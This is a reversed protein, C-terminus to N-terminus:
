MQAPMNVNLVNQRDNFWVPRITGNEILLYDAMGLDDKYDDYCSKCAERIFDVQRRILLNSYREAEITYYPYKSFQTGKLEYDITNYNARLSVVLINMGKKSMSDLKRINVQTGPCASNWFYVYYRENTSVLQKLDKGEILVVIKRWGHFGMKSKYDVIEFTRKEFRNADFESANTKDKVPFWQRRKTGSKGIFTQCGVLMSGALATVVILRGVSSENGMRRIDIRLHRYKEVENEFFSLEFRRCAWIGEKAPCDNADKM